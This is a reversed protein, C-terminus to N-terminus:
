YFKGGTRTRAEPKHDERVKNFAMKEVIAGGLDLGLAGALDGIRIMADALECEIMKRHPLKDDMLDKRHGELAESIESHILAIKTPAYYSRQKPTFMDGTDPDSWWGAKSSNAHALRALENVGHAIVNPMASMPPVYLAGRENKRVPKAENELMRYFTDCIECRFM